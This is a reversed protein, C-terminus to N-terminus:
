DCFHMLAQANLDVGVSGPGCIIFMFITGKWVILTDGNFVITNFAPRVKKRITIIARQDTNLNHTADYLIRNEQNMGPNYVSEPVVGTGTALFYSPISVAVQSGTQQMMVVRCNNYGATSPAVSYNLDIYSIGIANGARFSYGNGLAPWNLLSFLPSANTATGILQTESFKLSISRPIFRDVQFQGTTTSSRVRRGNSSKHQKKNNNKRM